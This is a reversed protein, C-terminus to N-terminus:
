GYEGSNPSSRPCSKAHFRVMELCQLMERSLKLFFSGNTVTNCEQECILDIARM